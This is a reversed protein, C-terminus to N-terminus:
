TSVALRPQAGRRHIRPRAYRSRLHEVLPTLWPRFSGSDGRAAGYARSMGACVGTADRCAAVVENWTLVEGVLDTEAAAGPDLLVDPLWAAVDRVSTLQVKQDGSGYITVQVM